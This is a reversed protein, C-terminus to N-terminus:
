RGPSRGDAADGLLGGGFLPRGALSIHFAFAALAIVVLPLLLSPGAYWSSVSVPAVYADVTLSGMGVMALLGFRMMVYLILVMIPVFILLDLVLNVSQLAILASWLVTIAGLAAWQSRLTVRALLILFLLFVPFVLDFSLLLRAVAPGFGTLAALVPLPPPAPSKGLWSSLLIQLPGNLALLVGAVGGILLDRGVRPDRINGSLLRSWSILLEPWFRRVYPELAIYVLWVMGSYFLADATARVLLFLEAWDAM